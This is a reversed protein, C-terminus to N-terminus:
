RYEPDNLVCHTHRERLYLGITVQKYNRFVANNTFSSRILVSLRAYGLRTLSM